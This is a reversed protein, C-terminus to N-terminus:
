QCGSFERCAVPLRVLRHCLVLIPGGRVWGLPREGYLTIRVLILLMLLGALPQALSPFGYYKIGINSLQTFTIIIFAALGLEPQGLTAVFILMLPIALLVLPGFEGVSVASIVGLVVALVAFVITLWDIWRAATQESNASASVQDAIM